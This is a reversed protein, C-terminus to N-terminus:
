VFLEKKFPYKEVLRALEEQEELQLRDPDDRHFGPMKGGERASVGCWEGLRHILAQDFNQYHVEKVNKKPFLGLDEEIQKEIYYVQAACMEDEPLQRLEEVNPPMISWWLGEEVGVKKRAKLISHIVFRPDRRVFVIRANPFARHILRLRQGANLNKFLIPRRLYTSAGLVEERIENVMESTVEDHDIFHRDKPLWRYWFGGCESPAHGGFKRTNGYEAKFNNHPNDGYKKHSLWLGFRLNRHWTCATNDIYAFQYANTLAQCLITSGTRPAGIIFVPQHKTKKGSGFFHNEWFRIVPSFFRLILSLLKKRMKSLFSM